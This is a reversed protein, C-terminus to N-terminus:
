ARGSLTALAAEMDAIFLQKQAPLVDSPILRMYPKEDVWKRLWAPPPLSQNSAYRELEATQHRLDLCLWDEFVVIQERRVARDAEAKDCTLLM